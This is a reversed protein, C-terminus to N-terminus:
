LERNTGIVGGQGVSGRGFPLRSHEGFLSDRWDFSLLDPGSASNREGHCKFGQQVLKNLNFPSNGGAVRCKSAHQCHLGFFHNKLNLLVRNATKFLLLQPM